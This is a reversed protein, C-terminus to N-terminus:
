KGRDFRDNFGIFATKLIYGVDSQTEEGGRIDGQDLGSIDGM